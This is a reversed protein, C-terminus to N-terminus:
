YITKSSKEAQTAIEIHLSGIQKSMRELVTGIWVLLALGVAILVEIM